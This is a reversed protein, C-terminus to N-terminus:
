DINLLNVKGIRYKLFSSGLRKFKDPADTVYFRYEPKRGSINLLGNKELMSRAAGATEFASDILSVGKLVGAIAPKLFPYHTCGLVLTDVKHKKLCSLYETCIDRTVKKGWWGEEVLPVFLPCAKSFVRAGGLRRKIAKEYAGSGVTGATGIVGIRGSFTANVAGSAGPEVVGLLPVRFRKKLDSLSLASATNCAIVILKVNKKLLCEINLASLRTVTERSKAGYPVHKTDGLYYISEGPLAKMLEKMVTLGGLGSDFVGIARKDSM